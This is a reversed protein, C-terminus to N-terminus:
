KKPYKRPRGRKVPPNVEQKESTLSVKKDEDGKNVRDKKLKDKNLKDEDGKNLKDKNFKETGLKKKSKIMINEKNSGSSDDDHNKDAKSKKKNKKPLIKENKIKLVKSNKNKSIKEMENKNAENDKKLKLDNEKIYKQKLERNNKINKLDGRINNVLKIGKDLEKENELNYKDIQKFNGKKSIKSSIKLFIMKLLPIVFILFILLIDPLNFVKCISLVSLTSILEIFYVNDITYKDDDLVIKKVIIGVFENMLIWMIVNELSQNGNKMDILLNIKGIIGLYNLYRIFKINRVIMFLIIGILFYIVLDKTIVMQPYVLNAFLPSIFFLLFLSPIIETIKTTGNSKQIDLCLSTTSTITTLHSLSSTMKTINAKKLNEMNKAELFNNFIKESLNPKM